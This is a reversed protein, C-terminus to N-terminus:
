KKVVVHNRIYDLIVAESSATYHLGDATSGELAKGTASDLMCSAQDLYVLNQYQICLNKLAMNYVLARENTFSPNSSEFGASIPLINALYIIADPHYQQICDVLRKIQTIFSDANNMGLDNTGFAIYYSSYSLQPILELMTMAPSGDGLSFARSDCAQQATYGIKYYGHLKVSTTYLVLGQTRSDGLFCAQEFYSDDARGSLRYRSTDFWTGDIMGTDPNVDGSIETEEAADGVSTRDGYFKEYYERYYQDYADNVAYDDPSSPTANRDTMDAGTEKSRDKLSLEKEAQGGPDSSDAGKKQRQQDYYIERVVLTLAVSLLLVLILVVPIWGRHNKRKKKGAM